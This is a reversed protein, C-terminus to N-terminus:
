IKVRRLISEVFRPIPCYECLSENGSEVCSDQCVDDFCEAIQSLRVNCNKQDLLHNLARSRTFKEGPELLANKNPRGLQKSSSRKETGNYNNVLHLLSDKTMRQARISLEKQKDVDQVKTLVLANGMGITGTDVLKQVSEDLSLLDLHQRVTNASVGCRSAISLQTHGLELMQKYAKAEQIPTLGERQLNEILMVEIEDAKDKFERM